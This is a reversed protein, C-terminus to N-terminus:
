FTNPMTRQIEKWLGLGGSDALEQALHFWFMGQVQRSMPSDMLGSRPITREMEQLVKHLLVSEFDKAAQMQSKGARARKMAGASQAASVQAQALLSNTPNSIGNM